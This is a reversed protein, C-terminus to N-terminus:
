KNKFLDKGLLKEVEKLAGLKVWLLQDLKFKEKM